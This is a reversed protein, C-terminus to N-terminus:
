RRFLIIIPVHGAPLYEVFHSLCLSVYLHRVCWVHAAVNYIKRQEETLNVEVLM